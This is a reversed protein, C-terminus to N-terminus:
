VGESYKRASGALQIGARKAIDRVNQPTMNWKKAIDVARMQPHKRVFERLEEM